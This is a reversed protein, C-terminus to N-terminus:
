KPAYNKEWSMSKHMKDYDSLNPKVSFQDIPKKKIKPYDM